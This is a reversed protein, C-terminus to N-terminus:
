RSRRPVRPAGKGKMAVLRDSLEEPIRSMMKNRWLSARSVGLLKAMRRYEELGERCNQLYDHETQAPAWNPRDAHPHSGPPM